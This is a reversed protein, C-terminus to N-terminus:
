ELDDAEAEDAEDASDDVVLDVDPVTAEGADDKRILLHRIVKPALKLNRELEGTTQPELACDYTVYYGETYESIGYALKRRGWPDVKSVTGKAEEVWGKVQTMVGNLEEETVDSAVIFTLDYNRM